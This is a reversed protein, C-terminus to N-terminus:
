GGEALADLSATYAAELAREIVSVETPAQWHLGALSDGVVVAAATQVRRVQGLAFLAAIEMEVTKIGEAQYHQVEERTERYPADTTWTAGVQCDRGRAKLAAVLNATLGLDAQSYKAPPLYHHSTGEDRIARECVVIDGPRLGPQLAGGWALSILRKVGFAILEEALSVVLPAGIGFNTLVAVRGRARKVTYLDGMLRGTHRIPIRWRMREPLGKHLCLLVAEPSDIKPLRGLRRRYAIMEGPELLSAANHKEPYNPFTMSM